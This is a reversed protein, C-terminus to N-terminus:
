QYSVTLDMAVSAKVCVGQLMAVDYTFTQLTTAVATIVAVTNTAPTGTCAATALDFVSVTGAGGTNISLTHLFGANAKVATATTATIHAYSTAPTQQGPEAFTYEAQVTGGAGSNVYTVTVTACSNAPVPFIQVATNNQLTATFVTTTTGIQTAQCAVTISGGAAAAVSYQFYVTGNTNLYPTQFSASVNANGPSGGFLTKDVQAALYDGASTNFTGWAGSYSLTFTGTGPACTVTAQFQPFYGSASVTARRGGALSIADSINFLNGQRDFAQLQATLTQTGTSNISLYHQTQGLNSIAFTQVAGTCTLNTALMQQETQPSVYGIFQAHARPPPACAVLAIVSMVAYKKVAQYFKSIGM